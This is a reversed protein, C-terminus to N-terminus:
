LTTSSFDSFIGCAYQVNEDEAEVGLSGRLVLTFHWLMKINILESRMKFCCEGVDIEMLIVGGPPTHTHPYRVLRMWYPFHEIEIKFKEHCLGCTACLVFFAAM